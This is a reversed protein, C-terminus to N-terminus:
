RKIYRLAVHQAIVKLVAYIPVALILGALGWIEGGLLLVVIITLPHIHLTRGMIYPSFINGEMIQVVINVVVVWLAMEWSVSLGILLAPAAGIYPGLYPIIDALGVLTGLLLPYPLRILLYGLYATIGVALSVLLQGRIYSGLAEDIDRLLRIMEKRHRKHMFTVVAREMLNFDKLLYFAIFPVLFAAFIFRIAGTIWEVAQASVGTFRAELNALANEIAHQIAPPLQHKHNDLDLMWREFASVMEPLHETLDQVQQLFVPTVRLFIVTLSVIFILYILLVAISRPIGKEHLLKVVPHLLYCVIAAAIFPGIIFRMLDIIWILVPKIQVFIYIIALVLLLSVLLRLTKTELWKDLGIVDEVV